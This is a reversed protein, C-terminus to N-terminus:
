RRGLREMLERHQKDRKADREELKNCLLLGIVVFALMGLNWLM